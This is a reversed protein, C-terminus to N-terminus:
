SVVSPCAKSRSKVPKVVHQAHCSPTTAVANTAVVTTEVVV